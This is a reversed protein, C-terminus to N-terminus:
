SLIIDWYIFPLCTIASPFFVCNLLIFMGTYCYQVLANLASGDVDQLEVESQNTERLGSTFMAAFYESGASLILRHAPIRKTGSFLVCNSWSSLVCSHFTFFYMIYSVLLLHSILLSVLTLTHRWVPWALKRIVHLDSVNMERARLQCAQCVINVAPTVGVLPQTSM